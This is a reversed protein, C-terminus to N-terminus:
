LKTYFVRRLLRKQLRSLLVLEAAVPAALLVISLLHGVKKTISKLNLKLFTWKDKTINLRRANREVARKSALVSEQLEAEVGREIEAVRAVLRDRDRKCVSVSTVEHRNDEVM